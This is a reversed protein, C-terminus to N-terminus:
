PVYAVGGGGEEEEEGRRPKQFTSCFDDAAAILNLIERERAGQDSSSSNCNTVRAGYGLSLILLQGLVKGNETEKSQLKDKSEKSEKGGKRETGHALLLL